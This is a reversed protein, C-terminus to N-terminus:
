GAADKDVQGGVFIMEGARVGHQYALHEPWDWHGDPWVFSRDAM